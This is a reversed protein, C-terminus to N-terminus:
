GAEEEDIIEDDHQLWAMRDFFGALERREVVGQAEDMVRNVTELRTSISTDAPLRTCMSGWWAPLWRGDDGYPTTDDDVLDAQQLAERQDETEARLLVTLHLLEPHDVEDRDEDAVKELVVAVEDLELELVGEPDVALEGAMGIKEAARTLLEEDNLDVSTGTYQALDQRETATLISESM